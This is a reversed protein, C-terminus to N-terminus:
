RAGATQLADFDHRTMAFVETDRLKGDLTRRENRLTAEHVFGCRRPVAASRHNEKSCMVTLREAHLHEFALNRLLQLAESVYGKGQEAPHIWYGAELSPVSWDIRHLGTAGIAREGDRLFIGMVLDERLSWKGQIRRIYTRTFEQNVHERIWPMWPALHSRSNEVLAWLADADGDVWPRLLIREGILPLPIELLLPNVADAM